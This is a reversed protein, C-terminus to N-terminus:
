KKIVKRPKAGEGPGVIGKDELQDLLRAARAYGIALRRQLLSANVMDYSQVLKIANPLLTDPTSKIIHPDYPSFDQIHKEIKLIRKFLFDIQKEIEDLKKNNM